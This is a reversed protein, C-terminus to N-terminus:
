IYCCMEAVYFDREIRAASSGELKEDWDSSSAPLFLILRGEMGHSQNALAVPYEPRESALLHM